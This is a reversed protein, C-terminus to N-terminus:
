QIVDYTHKNSKLTSPYQLWAQLIGHLVHMPDDNDCDVDERRSACRGNHHVRAVIDRMSNRVQVRPQVRLVDQERINKPVGCVHRLENRLREIDRGHEHRDLSRHRDRELRVVPTALSVQTTTDLETGM